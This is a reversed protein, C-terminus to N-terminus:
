TASNGEVKQRAFKDLIGNVMKPEDGNFFGHAVDLYENIAIQVPLDAMLEGLAARLLARLVPDLRALPWSEPLLRVLAADISDQKAVAQLVIEELLPLDADPIHGDEFSSQPAGQRYRLFEALVSEANNGTQECQYLAQTAAMRAITRSRKRSSTGSENTM